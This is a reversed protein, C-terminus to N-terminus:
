PLKEEGDETKFYFYRSAGGIDTDQIVEEMIYMAAFSDLDLKQWIDDQEPTEELEKLIGMWKERIEEKQKESVNRPSHIVLPQNNELVIWEDAESVRGPYDLEMITQEPDNRRGDKEKVNESLLYLGQYEENLYLLSPFGTISNVARMGAACISSDRSRRAAIRASDSKLSTSDILLTRFM